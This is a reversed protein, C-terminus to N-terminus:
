HLARDYLAEVKATCVALDFESEAISRGAAGMAEARDHNLLVDILADSLARVDREAVLRGNQGDRIVQPIGGSRSAVVPRGLAGAELLVQGLGETAGSGATVSPLCLVRATRIAALTEEHNTVGLFKVHRQIGLERVLGELSDRLPGGGVLWLEVEPVRPVLAAVARILFSAGKVEVLRGVHVVVPAEPVPSAQIAQTDVGTPVVHCNEAHAGLQVARSRVFDSVCILTEASRMFRERGVAYRIWSPSRSSLLARRSYTADFGHLTTVAPIDLRRAAGQSCLGEVGFHSHLLGIGVDRCKRELESTDGALLYRLGRAVGQSFLRVSSGPPEEGELVRGVYTADTRKM